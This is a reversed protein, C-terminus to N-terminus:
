HNYTIAGFIRFTMWFIRMMLLIETEPNAQVAM